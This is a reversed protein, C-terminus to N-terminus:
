PLYFTDKQHDSISNLELCTCDTQMILEHWTFPLIELRVPGILEATQIETDNVSRWNLTCTGHLLYFIEPNKTLSLGKHYHRGSVTGAKRFIILSQGIREHYYEATYGRDDSGSIDLRTIKM